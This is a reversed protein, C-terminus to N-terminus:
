QQSDHTKLLDQQKVWNIATNHSVGTKREIERFSMGQQHLDLCKQKIEPPYGRATYRDIFQRDCARCIYRQKAQHHGNKAVRDSQCHPCIMVNIHSQLLHDGIHPNLYGYLAAKLEEYIVPRRDPPSKVAVLALSEYIRHAMESLLESRAQSLTPNRQRYVAAHQVISQQQASAGLEDTLLLFLGPVPPQMFQLYMCRILPREIYGAFRDILDGISSGLPRYIDQQFFEQHFDQAQQLYEAELAHFIALKDPFFQYISGIATNARDAIQQTTAATYGVETFVEVAALLIKEVRQQGRKQKPQRRPPLDSSLSSFNNM